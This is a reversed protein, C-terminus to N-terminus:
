RLPNRAPFVLDIGAELLEGHDFNGPLQQLFMDTEAPWIGILGVLATLALRPDALSQMLLPRYEFIRAGDTGMLGVLARLARLRLDEGPHLLATSEKRTVLAQLHPMADTSGIRAVLYCLEGLARVHDPDPQEFEAVWRSLLQTSAARLGERWGTDSEALDIFIDAPDEDPSLPPLQGAYESRANRLRADILLALNAPLFEFEFNRIKM